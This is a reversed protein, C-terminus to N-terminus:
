KGFRKLALQTATAAGLLCTENAIGSNECSNVFELYEQRCKEELIKLVSAGGDYSSYRGYQAEPNVCYMLRDSEKSQEPQTTKSAKPSGIVAMANVDCIDSSHGISLWYSRCARMFENLKARCSTKAIEVDSARGGNTQSVICARLQDAAADALEKSSQALVSTSFLILFVSLQVTKRMEGVAEATERSFSHLKFATTKFADVQPVQARSSSACLVAELRIPLSCAGAAPRAHSLGLLVRM